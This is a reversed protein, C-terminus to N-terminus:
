KIPTYRNYEKIEFSKQIDGGIIKCKWWFAVEGPIYQEWKTILKVPKVEINLEEKLERKLAAKMHEGHHTHGAPPCWADQFEGFDKYNTSKILLYKVEKNKNLCIVVKKTDKEVNM